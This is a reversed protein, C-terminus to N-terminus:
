HKLAMSMLTLLFNTFMKFLVKGLTWLWWFLLAQRTRQWSLVVGVHKTGAVLKGRGMEMVWGRHSESGGRARRCIGPSSLDRWPQEAGDSISWGRDADSLDRRFVVCSPPFFFYCVEAGWVGFLLSLNLDSTVSLTDSSGSLRGTTIKSPDVGTIGRGWRCRTEHALGKVLQLFFPFGRALNHKFM